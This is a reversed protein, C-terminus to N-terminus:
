ATRRSLKYAQHDMCLLEYDSTIFGDLWKERLQNYVNIDGGVAHWFETHLCIRKEWSIFNEESATPQNVRDCPMGELLYDYIGKFMEQPTNLNGKYSKYAKVGNSRYLAELTSFDIWQNELGKTIAGAMRYELSQIKLQLWGHINDTEIVDALDAVVPSGFQAELNQKLFALDSTNQGNNIPNSVQNNMQNYIEDLLEEHWKVKDYLWYHIPGLFASM